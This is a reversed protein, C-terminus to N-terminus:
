ALLIEKWIPGPDLSLHVADKSLHGLGRREAVGDVWELLMVNYTETESVGYDESLLIFEFPGLSEFFPMEEFGDLSVSGCSINNDPNLIGAIGELVGRKTSRVEINFYVALTWFQLVPYPRPFPKGDDFYTSPQTNSEDITM